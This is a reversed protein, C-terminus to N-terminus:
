VDGKKTVTYKIKNNVPGNCSILITMLIIILIQNKM